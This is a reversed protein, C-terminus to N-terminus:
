WNCLIALSCVFATPLLEHGGCTLALPCLQAIYQAIDHRCNYKCDMVNALILKVPRTTKYKIALESLTHCWKTLREGRDANIQLTVCACVM